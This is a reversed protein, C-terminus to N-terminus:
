WKDLNGGAATNRDVCNFHSTENHISIDPVATVVQGILVSLCAFATTNGYERGKTDNNNRRVFHLLNIV